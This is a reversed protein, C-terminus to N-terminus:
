VGGDFKALTDSFPAPHGTCNQGLTESFVAFTFFLYFNAYLKKL